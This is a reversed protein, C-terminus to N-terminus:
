GKDTAQMFIDQMKKVHCRTVGQHTPLTLIERAFLEANPYRERRKFMKDLGPIDPLAYPYMKSVGLGSERLRRYLRERLDRNTILLPYRLLPTHQAARRLCTLDVVATADIRALMAGIWEQVGHPTSRYLGINRALHSEVHFSVPAINLLPKFRTTGIHLFPLRAALGYVHPSLLINYLRTKLQASLRGTTNSTAAPMMQALGADFSKDRYLIAGGGLLSVPKGRGFSQIILDGRIPSDSVPNLLYQASDEILLIEANNAIERLLEMREEVGLFNVGIIAISRSTIKQLLQEHDLWPTNPHLDVLVPKAGAYLVASILDPCGYAPLLIEPAAHNRRASAIKVAAALAATGSHFLRIKYPEFLSEISCKQSDDQNLSIRDGVPPLMYFM